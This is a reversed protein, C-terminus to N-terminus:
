KTNDGTRLLTYCLWAFVYFLFGYLFLNGWLEVRYGEGYNLNFYRVIVMSYVAAVVTTAAILLHRQRMTAVVIIPVVFLIVSKSAMGREWYVNFAAFITDALALTLILGQNALQGLRRTHSFFWIIVNVVLLIVAATWRQNVAEHTVLGWAYFIIISGMYAAVLAFHARSVRQAADKLWQNPKQKRAM